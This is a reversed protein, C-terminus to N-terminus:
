NAKRRAALVEALGYKYPEFEHTIGGLFLVFRNSRIRYAERFGFSAIHTDPDAWPPCQGALMRKIAADAHAVILLGLAGRSEAPEFRDVRMNVLRNEVWRM